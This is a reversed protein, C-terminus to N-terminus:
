KPKRSVAVDKFRKQFLGHGFRAGLWRLTHILSTTRSLIGLQTHTNLSSDTFDRFFVVVFFVQDIM